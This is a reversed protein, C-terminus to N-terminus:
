FLDLQDGTRIPKRFLDTRLNYKRRNLKLHRCALQFRRNIMAAYPGTGIMRQKFDPQYMKGDRTSRVLKLIRSAGDPYHEALWDAFLEAVEGPLRLLIYVAGTAGAATARELIEEMEADNLAPIVPAVQAITPIGAASLTKIAKLRKVPTSARPEMKRALRPDLTTVSVGVSLLGKKALPVLIDLDNLISASKTTIMVPHDAALLVKLINRTIRYQQEIPQYPDTNTGMAIPRCIYNPQRLENELLDAADPKAFLRSEFDLGPSLNM